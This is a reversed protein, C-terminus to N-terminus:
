YSAFERRDPEVPSIRRDPFWPKLKKPFRKDIIKRVRKKNAEERNIWDVIEGLLKILDESRWLKNLKKVEVELLLNKVL